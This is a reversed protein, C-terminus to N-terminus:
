VSGDTLTLSNITVTGGSSVTSGFSLEGSSVGATGQVITTTGDTTTSDSTIRFYGPTGDASATADAIASCTLVGSAASGAIPNAMSHKSLLTGTASAFAGGSKAPASGSYVWLYGTTGAATTLADLRTNCNTTTVTAM